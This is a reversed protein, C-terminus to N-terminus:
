GIKLPIEAQLLIAHRIKSFIKSSNVIREYLVGCLFLPWCRTLYGPAGEMVKINIIELGANKCIQRLKRASNGRYFTPFAEGTEDGRWWHHLWFPTFRAAIVAYHYVNPTLCILKGGPKLIRALECFTKEPYELHEIAWRCHILDFSDDEFPFTKSIDHVISEDCTPNNHVAPDIDIGVIYMEKLPAKICLGRDSCAADLIKMGPRAFACFAADLPDRPPHPYYRANLKFVINQNFGM